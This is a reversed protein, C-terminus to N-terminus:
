QGGVAKEIEEFDRDLTDDIHSTETREPVYRRFTVRLHEREDQKTKFTGELDPQWGDVCLPKLQEALKEVARAFEQVQKPTRPYATPKEAKWAVKETKVEQYQGLHGQTDYLTFLCPRHARAFLALAFEELTMEVEIVARRSADDQLRLVITQTNSRNGQPRHIDLRGRLRKPEQKKSM